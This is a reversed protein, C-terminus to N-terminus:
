EEELTKKFKGVFNKVAKMDIDFLLCLLIVVNEM